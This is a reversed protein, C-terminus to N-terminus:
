DSLQTWSKTVGHVIAQWSGRDLLNGLCSDQLPDGNGEGPSRGSGPASSPDGAHCAPEEGDLGGPSGQQVHPLTHIDIASEQNTGGEGERGTGM